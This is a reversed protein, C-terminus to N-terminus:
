LAGINEHEMLLRETASLADGLQEEYDIDLANERMNKRIPGDFDLEGGAYKGKAAVGRLQQGTVAKRDAALVAVKQGAPLTQEVMPIQMLSSTALPVPSAQRLLPHIAALFGCSTTIGEVGISVLQHIADVFPQLSEAPDETIVRAPTIGSVVCFQVPFDWTRGNAIDGELRTFTTDLVIIGISLDSVTRRRPSELQFSRYSQSM